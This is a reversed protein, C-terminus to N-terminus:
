TVTPIPTTMRSSTNMMLRCSMWNRTFICAPHRNAFMPVVSIVAMSIRVDPWQSMALTSSRNENEDSLEDAPMGAHIM